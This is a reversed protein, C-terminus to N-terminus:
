FDDPADYVQNTNPNDDIGLKGNMKNIDSYSMPAMSFLSKPKSIIPNEDVVDWSMSLINNELKVEKVIIMKNILYNSDLHKPGQANISYFSRIAVEFTLSEIFSPETLPKWLSEMVAVELGKSTTKMKSKQFVYHGVRPALEHAGKVQAKQYASKILLTTSM